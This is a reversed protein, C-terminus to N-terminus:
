DTDSKSGEVVLLIEAIKERFPVVTVKGISVVGLGWRGSIIKHKVGLIDSPCANSVTNHHALKDFLKFIM